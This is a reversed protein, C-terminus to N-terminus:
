NKKIEIIEIRREKAAGVSFISAAEDQENDSINKAATDEGFSVQTIKLQGNDFYKQFLGGEYNKWYNVLSAVRRKGLNNNYDNKALPSAFGKVIIEIKEGKYLRGLLIPTFKQLQIFHEHITKEFLGDINEIATKRDGGVGLNKEIYEYKRKYYINEAQEYTKATTTARTNRDPEDNDFYLPLPLFDSLETYEKPIQPPVNYKTNPPPPTYNPPPVKNSTTPVDKKPDKTPPNEYSKPPTNPTNGKPPTISTTSPPLDKKPVDTANPIDKKPTKPTEKKPEDLAKKGIIAKYVDYCCTENKKDLFQSGLRNSALYGEKGNALLNFYLDNYSSNIPTGMNRPTSFTNKNKVSAFVDLGGLTEYGNSSFYLTKNSAHYYPSMEDGQTNIYALNIPYSFGGTPLIISYWIDNGGKGDKRNSVFYLIEEGNELAVFPMTNSAAAVNIFDPLREEKSWTDGQKERFYISCVIEDGANGYDCNTFYVRESKPSFASYATHQTASNYKPIAKAATLTDKIALVKTLLRPPNKKDEKNEFRLSSFYLTEDRKVAGFDSYPTNVSKGLHEITVDKPTKILGIAWDSSKIEKRAQTIHDFSSYPDGIVEEFLMKAEDYKGQSKKVAALQFKATPYKKTLKAEIVKLYNKEALAYSNYLRATEAMKWALDSDNKGKAAAELYYELAANYDKQVFSADGAEEFAKATQATINNIFAFLFLIYILKKL